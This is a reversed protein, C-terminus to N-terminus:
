DEEYLDADLLIYGLVQLVVSVENPEIGNDVLCQEAKRITESTVESEFWLANRPKM